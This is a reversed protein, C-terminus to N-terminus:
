MIGRIWEEIRDDKPKGLIRIYQNGDDPKNEYFVEPLLKMINSSMDYKHGSSLREVADPFDQHLKDTLRYITRSFGISNLTDSRKSRVKDLIPRLEDFQTFTGIKGFKKQPIAYLLQLEM